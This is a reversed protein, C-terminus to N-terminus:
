IFFSLTCMCAICLEITFAALRRDHTVLRCQPPKIQTYLLSYQPTGLIIVCPNDTPSKKSVLSSLEEDAHSLYPAITLSPWSTVTNGSECHSSYTASCYEIDINGSSSLNEYAVVHILYTYEILISYM